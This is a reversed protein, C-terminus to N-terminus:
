LPPSEPDIPPGEELAFAVLEHACPEIAIDVNGRGPLPSIDIREILRALRLLARRRRNPCKGAIERQLAGLRKQLRRSFGKPTAAPPDPLSRLEVQMAAEEREIDLIRRHAAASQTGTEIAELLHTVRGRGEEIARTLEARRRRASAAAKHILNPIEGTRILHRSLLSCAENEIYEAEIGRCNSCTGQTHRVHCRYRRKQSITMNGGCVGCRLVGTLPLPIRYGTGYRRDHGARRLDQVRQWTDKDVIRLEPVDNVVWESEPNPRAKRKGTDPDRIHTQRNYILRGDYLDNNLIGKRQAANGNITSQNWPRGQPGPVGEANLISAIQRASTGDAYLSFIRQVVRAQEPDVARLGRTVRGREDIRNASRYGYCLGGPVRRDHVAGIQGRRTKAALNEIYTQSLLGGICVQIDDIEGRDLTVLRVNWFRLRKHIAAMDEQDRSIRDLSETLILDIQGTEADVLLERLAPRFQRTAATTARDEHVTVVNGRLQEAHRRCLRVQDAISTPKQLRSSFRAYIAIRLTCPSVKDPM